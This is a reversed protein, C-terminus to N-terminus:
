RGPRHHSRHRRAQRSLPHRRAIVTSKLGAAPQGDLMLRFTAPEGAVLRQSADGALELGVAPPRSRIQRRSAPPSSCRWGARCYLNLAPRPAPRSRRPTTKPRAAGGSRRAARKYSAFVGQQARCDQLHGEADAPCRVDLPLARHQWESAPGDLWGAGHRVVSRGTGSARLLPRPVASTPSRFRFTSSTSCTTRCPLTSLSGSTMAPWCPPPHCCGSATRMAGDAACVAIRCAVPWKASSKM